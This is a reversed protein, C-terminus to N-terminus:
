DAAMQNSEDFVERMTVPNIFEYLEILDALPAEFGDTTQKWPFFDMDSKQWFRLLVDRPSDDGYDSSQPLRTVLKYAEVKSHWEGKFFLEYFAHLKNRPFDARKFAIVHRLLREFDETKYPRAHIKYRRGGSDRKSLENTRIYEISQVASSKIAMYDIAACDQNRFARKASKLLEHSREVMERIPYSSKTIVLGVSVTLNLAQLRPEDKSKEAFIRHFSSTFELALQAGYQAPVIAILDDGGGVIVQVPYVDLSGGPEPGWLELCEKLAEKAAKDVWKSMNSYLNFDASDPKLLDQLVKGLGNVDSYLMAVYNEPTGAARIDSLTEPMNAKGDKVYGNKIALDSLIKPIDPWDKESLGAFPAEPHEKACRWKILCAHCIFQELDNPKDPHSHQAPWQGCLKCPYVYLGSFTKDSITTVSKAVRLNHEARQLFEGPTEKDCQWEEIHTVVQASILHKHASQQLQQCFKEALNRERFLIKGTGGGLYVVQWACNEDEVTRDNEEFQQDQRRYNGKGYIADQSLILLPAFRNFRDLLVSAGSIEKLKNTAFIYDKIGRIDFLVLQLIRSM